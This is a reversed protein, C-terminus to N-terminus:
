SAEMIKVGPLHQYKAALDPYRSIIWGILEAPLKPGLGESYSANLAELIQEAWQRPIFISESM